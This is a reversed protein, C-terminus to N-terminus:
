WAIWIKDSLQVPQVDQTLTQGVSAIRTRL